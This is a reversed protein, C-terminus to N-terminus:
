CDMGSLLCALLYVLWVILWVVLRNAFFCALWSTSPSSDNHNKLVHSGSPSVLRHSSLTLCKFTRLSTSSYNNMKEKIIPHWMSEQWPNGPREYLRCQCWLSVVWLSCVFHLLRRCMAPKFSSTSWREPSALTVGRRTRNITIQMIDWSQWNLDGLQLYFRHDVHDLSARKNSSWEYFWRSTWLSALM